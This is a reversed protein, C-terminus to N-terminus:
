FKRAANRSPSSRRQTALLRNTVVALTASAAPDARLALDEQYVGEWFEDAELRAVAEEVVRGLPENRRSALEQLVEHTKDPIRIVASM